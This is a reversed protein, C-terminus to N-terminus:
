GSTSAANPKSKLFGRVNNAIEAARPRNGHVNAVNDVQKIGPIMSPRLGKKRALNSLMNTVNKGSSALKQLEEGFGVYARSNM